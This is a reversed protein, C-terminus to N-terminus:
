GRRAGSRGGAPCSPRQAVDHFRVPPPTTSRARKSLTHLHFGVSPEFGERDAVCKRSLRRTGTVRSIVGVNGRRRRVRLRVARRQYRSRAQLVGKKDGGDGNARRRTTKAQRPGDRFVPFYLSIARIKSGCASRRFESFGAAVPIEPSLQLRNGRCSCPIEEPSVPFSKPPVPFSDALDPIGRRPRLRRRLSPAARGLGLADRPPHGGGADSRSRGWSEIIHAEDIFVASLLGPRANMAAVFLDGAASSSPPPGPRFLRIGRM